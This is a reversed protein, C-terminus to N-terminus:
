FRDGRHEVWPGTRGGTGARHAPDRRGALCGAPQSVHVDLYIPPLITPRGLIKPPQDEHGKEELGREGIAMASAATGLVEGGSGTGTVGTRKTVAALRNSPCSAAILMMRRTSCLWPASTTWRPCSRLTSVTARVAMSSSACPM